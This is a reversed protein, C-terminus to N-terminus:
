IILYATTGTRFHYDIHGKEVNIHLRFKHLAPFYGLIWMIHLMHTMSKHTGSLFCLGRRPILLQRLQPWWMWNRHFSDNHSSHKGWIALVHTAFLTANVHWQWKSVHAQDNLWNLGNAEPLNSHCRRYTIKLSKFLHWRSRKNSHLRIRFYDFVNHGTAGKVLM